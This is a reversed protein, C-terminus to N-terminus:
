AATEVDTLAWSSHTLPPQRGPSGDRIFRRNRHVYLLVGVMWTPSLRISPSTRPPQHPCLSIVPSVPRSYGITIINCTERRKTLCQTSTVSHITHTEPWSGKVTEKRNRKSKSQTRTKHGWHDLTNFYFDLTKLYAFHGDFYNVFSDSTESKTFYFFLFHKIPNKISKIKQRPNEM